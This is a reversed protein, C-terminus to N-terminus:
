LPIFFIKSQAILFYLICFVGFAIIIVIVIQEWLPLEAFLGFIGGGGHRVINNRTIIAQSKLRYSGM